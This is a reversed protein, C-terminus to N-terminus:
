EIPGFLEIDASDENPRNRPAVKRPETIKKERKKTTVTQLFEYPMADDRLMLDKPILVISGILLQRSNLGPNSEVITKWNKQTGTYWTSIVALTEGRWRITHSYLRTTSIKRSIQKAPSDQLTREQKSASQFPSLTSCGASVLVYVTITAGILITAPIAPKTVFRALPPKPMAVEPNSKNKM